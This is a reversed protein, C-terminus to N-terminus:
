RQRHRRQRRAAAELIAKLEEYSRDSYAVPDRRLRERRYGSLSVVKEV